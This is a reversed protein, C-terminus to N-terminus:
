ELGYEKWRGDVLSRVTETMEIDGPWERPHSEDTGKRTADIGVKSGFDALTGGDATPLLMVGYPAAAADVWVPVLDPVDFMYQAPMSFMERSEQDLLLPQMFDYWGSKEDSPIGMMLDIARIGSPMPM